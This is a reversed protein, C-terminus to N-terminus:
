VRILVVALVLFMPGLEVADLPAVLVRKLVLGDEKSEQSSCSNEM